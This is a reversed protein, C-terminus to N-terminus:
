ESKETQKKAKTKKPSGKPIEKLEKAIAEREKNIEEQIALHAQRLSAMEQRYLMFEKNASDKCFLYGATFGIVVELFAVLPAIVPSSDMWIAGLFFALVACIVIVVKKNM